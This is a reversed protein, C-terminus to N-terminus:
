RHIEENEEVAQRAVWVSKHSFANRAGNSLGFRSGPVLVNRNGCHRDRLLAQPQPEQFLDLKM